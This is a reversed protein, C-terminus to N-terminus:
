ATVSSIRTVLRERFEVALCRAHRREGFRRAILCEEIRFASAGEWSFDVPGARVGDARQEVELGPALHFRAVAAAEGRVLDVIAADRDGCRISRRHRAGLADYGNHEASVELGEIRLDLIDPRRGVRFSAWMEAQDADGISVTNHAPTGREYARVPGAEYTSVGTDVVVACGDAFLEFSFCDAHAHGPLYDPGLRGFDAWLDLCAGSWRYYGSAGLVTLGSACAAPPPFGLAQAYAFIEDSGPAAGDFADNFLPTRGDPRTMARLWALGRTATDRWSDPLPQGAAASFNVLDLVDELLLQHYTPSLEFHGGDALFQEHLEANAIERGRRLWREAEPGAFFLGAFILAKGNAWLHNGLLHYELQDELARVQVALSEVMGPSLPAGALALFIWNVIRLSLPYPEWGNGALPPNAALWRAAFAIKREDPTAEARLGDHYHLNYLWLKPCDPANWDPDSAIRRTQGLLRVEQPGLLSEPRACPRVIDALNRLPPAPGLRPRAPFALRRVRSILQIPRLHRVTRLTRGISM